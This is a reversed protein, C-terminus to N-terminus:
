PGVEAVLSWSFRISSLMKGGSKRWRTWPLEEFAMWTHKQFYKLTAKELILNWKEKMCYKKEQVWWLTHRLIGRWFGLKIWFGLFYSFSILFDKTVKENKRLPLCSVYENLLTRNLQNFNLWYQWLFIQFKTCDWWIKTRWPRHTDNLYFFLQYDYAFDM